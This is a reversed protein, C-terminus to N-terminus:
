SVLRALIRAFLTDWPRAAVAPVKHVQCERRLWASWLVSVQARLRQAGADPERELFNAVLQQEDEEYVFIGRVRSGNREKGFSERYVLAPHIFDGELIVPSRDALHNEIVADLADMMVALIETGQQQIEAASLSGPDPHTPWFHLAPQQEPTTMRELVASFDDVATVDVDFHRALRRAVRTKGTGSPGGLLLVDWSRPM